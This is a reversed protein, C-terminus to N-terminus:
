PGRRRWIVLVGCTSELTSYRLPTEAPGAYYEIAEIQEPTMSNVDFLPEGNRGRYVETTDLYVQAYCARTAGRRVDYEDPSRLSAGSLSQPGRSSIVWAQNGTGRLLQLGPIQQLVAAMTLGESKALEARMAFHGLGLKRNEEFSQMAREYASETVVVSDLTVVHTLVFRRTSRHGALTVRADIPAYGFHRVIVRYTGAPVGRLRFGGLNDTLTGLALEPLLVEVGAIPQEGSESVVSGAFVVGDSTAREMTLEIRAFRRGSPIRAVVSDPTDASDAIAFIRLDTAAPVGCLRFSGDNDAKAEATRRRPVVGATLNTAYMALSDWEAFVTAHRPPASDGSMLLRGLIIGSYDGARSGCVRTEVQQATPARLQVPSAEDTFVVASQFVANLSDLSPTRLEITYEGPLVGQITFRGHSDTVGELETGQLAVRASSVPKGSVSDTVEGSLVLPPRSWLTDGGRRVLALEGGAVHIELVINEPDGYRASRIRQQMLPMQIQWRTIVWAGDRMRAFEIHGGAREEQERLLNAYRYELSRLELSARDLWLTGRIEAVRSRERRPEFVLGLRDGDHTLRFCHDEIFVSSLLVDLGPGYYTTTNSRDTVVYGIRHLSDSGLSRWPERVYGSQLTSHQQRIRRGSADLTREYSVTTSGIGSEISTLTAATLATRVQEWVAFTAAASDGSMQRCSSRDVVRVTDLTIPLGTLVLEHVVVADSTLAIPGSTTPRFGIRLARLHYVGASAVSIRFEGREGSLAQAAVRGASDLLQVVVGSVTAKAVSTVVGRVTQARAVASGCVLAALVFRATHRLM